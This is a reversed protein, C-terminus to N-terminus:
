RRGRFPYVASHTEMDIRYIGSDAGCHPATPQAGASIARHGSVPTRLRMRRELPPSPGQAIRAGASFQFVRGILASGLHEAGLIRQPRDLLDVPPQVAREAVVPLGGLITPMERALDTLQDGLEDVHQGRGAEGLM